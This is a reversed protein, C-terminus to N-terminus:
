DTRILSKHTHRKRHLHASSDSVHIKCPLPLPYTIEYWASEAVVIELFTVILLFEEEKRKNLTDKHIFESCCGSCCGRKRM